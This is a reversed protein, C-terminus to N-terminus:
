AGGGKGGHSGAGNRALGLALRRRAATAAAVGHEAAIERDSKGAALAAMLQADSLRRPPGKKPKAPEPPEPPRPPPEAGATQPVIREFAFPVIVEGTAISVHVAAM